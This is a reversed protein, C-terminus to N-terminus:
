RDRVKHDHQSCHQNNLRPLPPPNVEILLYDFNATELLYIFDTRLFIFDTRMFIFDRRLFIFDTRLFIFNTRLVIFDTRLFIFDTRLVIFDTRVEDDDDDTRVEDNCFFGLQTPNALYKLLLVPSGIIALIAVDMLLLMPLAMVPKNVLM